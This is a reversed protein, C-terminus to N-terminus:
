HRHTTLVICSRRDTDRNTYTDKAPSYGTPHRTMGQINTADSSAVDPETMAFCSRIEGALLPLLWRRQQTRSGYRALVEMNGTDPASCNFAESAWPVRGMERALYAYDLNSLGPGQLLATHQPTAEAAAVVGAVHDRLEASIWLNWLGEAQAASRLAAMRPFPDWRAPSHTHAHFAQSADAIQRGMFARLRELIPKCADSPGLGPPVPPM